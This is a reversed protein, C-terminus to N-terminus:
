VRAFPMRQLLSTEFYSDLGGIGVIEFDSLSLFGDDTISAVQDNIWLYEVQGIVLVCGNSKIPLEEVFRLGLQIPSEKVFPANFGDVKKHTLGTKEFESVGDDYKASCQHAQSYIGKSIANLSYQGQNKLNSYTQREVTLPRQIFGLLFPDAGIHVVSNFIGLNAIGDKNYSGVLNASKIGSVLNLLNRRHNQDLNSLESFTFLPM